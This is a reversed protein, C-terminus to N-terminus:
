SQISNLFIRWKSKKRGNLILEVKKGIQGGSNTVIGKHVIYDIHEYKKMMDLFENESGWYIWENNKLYIFNIQEQPLFDNLINQEM